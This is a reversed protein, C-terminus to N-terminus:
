GKREFTIWGSTESAGQSVYMYIVPPLVIRDARGHVFLHISVFFLQTFLKPVEIVVEPNDM